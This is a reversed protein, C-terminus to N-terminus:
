EEEKVEDDEPDENIITSTEIGLAGPINFPVDPIVTVNDSANFREFM